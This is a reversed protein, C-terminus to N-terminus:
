RGRSPAGRPGVPVGPAGTGFAARYGAATSGVRRVFARRMRQPDGLGFRSTVTRPPAGDALASGARDIRMREVFKAPPLGTARVLHRSLTRPGIAAGRAMEDLTRAHGPNALTAQALRGLAPELAHQATLAASFQAQGGSRRM